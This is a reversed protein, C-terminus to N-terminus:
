DQSFYQKLEQERNKATNVLRDIKQRYYYYWEGSGRVRSATEYVMAQYTKLLGTYQEESETSLDYIIEFKENVTFISKDDMKSLYKASQKEAQTKVGDVKSRFVEVRNEPKEATMNITTKHANALLVLGTVFVLLLVPLFGIGIWLQGFSQKRVREIKDELTVEGTVTDDAM